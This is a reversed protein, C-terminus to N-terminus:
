SKVAKKAGRRTKKRPKMKEPPSLQECNVVVEATPVCPRKEVCAIPALLEETLELNDVWCNWKQHDFEPLATLAYAEMWSCAANPYQVESEFRANWSRIQEVQAPQTLAIAKRMYPGIVPTNADTLIFSQAKERLKMLPTINPPLCVTVHLKGLQRPLDCCSNIDGFWVDPGYIRALFKIGFQGRLVPQIDLELGCSKAADLYDKPNVDATLGDDGGYIGLQSYATKPCTIRKRRTVYAVFANILSNMAATEPSGSARAYGQDYKSGLAGYGKMGYQSRHLNVLEDHYDPHFLRLLVIRELLRLLCNVHGDFRSYDTNVASDAFTLVEAVRAAIEVPTRGFAYWDCTKLHESFAYMFQSYAAKDTGNITSIPRPDSPKAYVEKKLFMAIRRVPALFQAERLIRRQSPRNQRDYLEDTDGPHALHPEPIFQEAFEKMMKMIWTTQKPTNEAFKTIRGAIAQEENGRTQDPAYCEPLIACMFPVVAPKADPQFDQPRFQYRNVGESIPFVTHTSSVFCKQRHYELLISAAVRDPKDEPGPTMMTLVQPQTLEQKNTRAITAIADDVSAPVTAVSYYGVRGTSRLLCSDTQVDLRLYDGEVLTLRELAPAVLHTYCFPFVYKRLPSLLVLEHHKATPKRDVMWLTTMVIINGVYCDLRLSDRSWNWVQHHYTAGGSVKYTVFNSSDFTFSYNAEIGACAQPQFTYLLTPKFHRSLLWPLDDRHDCDIMVLLSDERPSAGSATAQLDKAALPFMMGDRGAREDARIRHVYFFELGVLAAFREAYASASTRDTAALPHSHNIPVPLSVFPTENFQGRLSEPHIHYPNSLCHVAELAKVAYHGLRVPPDAIFSSVKMQWASLKDSLRSSACEIALKIAFM